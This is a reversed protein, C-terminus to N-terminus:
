LYKSTLLNLQEYDVVLYKLQHMYLRGQMHWLKLASVSKGEGREKLTQIKKGGM